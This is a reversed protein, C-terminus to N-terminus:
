FYENSSVKKGKQQTWFYVLGIILGWMISSLGLFTINSLGILLTILAAEQYPTDSFATKM